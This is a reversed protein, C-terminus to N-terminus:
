HYIDFKKVLRHPQYSLKSRRLGPIGADQERNVYVFEKWITRACERNMYQHLGAIQRNALEVHVVVTQPNLAEGLCFGQVRDDIIAVMGGLELASFNFLAERIATSAARTLDDAVRNEEPSEAEWREVLELCGALDPETLPRIEARYNKEFKKILNRKGDYKKGQLAALEATLYVYDFNDRDEKIQHPLRVKELFSESVRSLRPALSLCAEVTEELRNDGVPELFYAPEAPPQCLVGLNGYIRTLRPREWHRWIYINAFTLECIEPPFRDLYRQVEDRDSLEAPKLEPFNPIM